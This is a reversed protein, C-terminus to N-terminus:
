NFSVFNVMKMQSVSYQLM